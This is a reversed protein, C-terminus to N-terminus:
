KNLEIQFKLHNKPLKYQNQLEFINVNYSFM